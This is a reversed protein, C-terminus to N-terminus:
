GRGRHECPCTFGLCACARACMRVGMYVFVCTCVHACRHVCVCTHGCAFVWTTFLLPHCSIDMESLCVCTRVWTCVWACVYMWGEGLSMSNQGVSHSFGAPIRRLAPPFGVGPVLGQLARPSLSLVSFVYITTTQLMTKQDGHCSSIGDSNGM